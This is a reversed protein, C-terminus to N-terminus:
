WQFKLTATPVAEVGFPTQQMKMSVEADVSNYRSATWAADAASLIHNAVVVLVATRAVSYLDNAHARMKSYKKFLASINDPSIDRSRDADKWGPNYQPYKGIVEYYQQDGYPPLTHTFYGGLKREWENLQSWYVRRWPPLTTDPNIFITAGKKENLWAAYDVVSWNADAFNQFDKTARDGKRNYLINVTWSIVEAAFFICSKIYSKSYFEGAGPVVGSLVAALLPSKKRRGWEMEQLLTSSSLAPEGPLRSSTSFLDTKLDGSFIFAERKEETRLLNKKIGENGIATQSFVSISVMSGILIFAGIMYTMM